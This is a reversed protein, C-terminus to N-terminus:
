SWACMLFTVYFDAFPRMASRGENICQCSSESKALHPTSMLSVTCGTPVAETSRRFAGEKSCEEFSYRIKAESQM